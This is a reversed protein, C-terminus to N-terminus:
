ESMSPGFVQVTRDMGCAVIRSADSDFLLHTIPKKHSQLSTVEDWSNTDYVSLYKGGIALYQGSDDYGLTHPHFTNAMTITHLPTMKRLDWIKICGDDSASAMHIGTQAFAISTIPSDHMLSGPNQCSNMEWIRVAADEGGTVMVMGDPHFATCTLGNPVHENSVHCVTQGQNMDHIAWTKDLACSVFHASNPHLDIGTVKSSHQTFTHSTTAEGARYSWSKITTDASATLATHSPAHLAVDLVANGHGIFTAFAHGSTLDTLVAQKDAGGSLVLHPSTEHTALCFVGGSPRTKHPKYSAKCEFTQIQEKTCLAEPITRQKRYNILEKSLNTFTQVISQPLVSPMEKSETPISPSEPPQGVELSQFAEDREKMLRTIVRCAAEYQHNAKALENQTQTLQQKLHFSELAMADWENQFMTLMAPISSAVQNRPPIIISSQISILQDLTLPNNSVPCTSYSDLHKAILRREYVHGCPCVVADVAPLGSLNCHM